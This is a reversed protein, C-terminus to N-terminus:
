KKSRKKQIVYAAAGAVAVTGAAMVAIKGWKRVKDFQVANKVKDLATIPRHAAITVCGLKSDVEVNTFGAETLLASIEETKYMKMGAILRPYLNDLLGYGDFDNIILFTGGPKLVRRIEKLTKPLDEWFFITQVATIVDFHEAGFPLLDASGEYVSCRGDEIAKRNFDFSFSVCDPSLDIGTVHGYPAKKMLRALNIGGGCGIDLIEADEKIDLHSLGWLSVPTQFVNMTAILMKGLTGKPCSFASCKEALNLMAYEGKLIPCIAPYTKFMVHYLLIMPRMCPM